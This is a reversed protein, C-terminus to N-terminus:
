GGTTSRAGGTSPSGGASGGPSDPSSCAVVLTALSASLAVLSLRSIMENSVPTPARNREPLATALPRLLGLDRRRRGHRRRLLLRRRWLQLRRLRRQLITNCRLHGRRQASDRSM